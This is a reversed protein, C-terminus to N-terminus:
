GSSIVEVTGAPGGALEDSIRSADGVVVTVLEAPRLHKAAANVADLPV